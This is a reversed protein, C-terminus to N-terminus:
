KWQFELAALISPDRSRPDYTAGLIVGFRPGALRNLAAVLSDNERLALQLDRESQKRLSAEAKANAIAENRESQLRKVIEELTTRDALLMDREATIRALEDMVRDREIAALIAQEQWYAVAEALDEISKTQSAAAVGSLSAMLILLVAMLAVLMTKTTRRM